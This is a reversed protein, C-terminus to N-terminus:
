PVVIRLFRGPAGLPVSATRRGDPGPASLTVGTTTWNTLDTSTEARYTLGARGAYFSLQLNNGSLVPSPLQARQPVTPDLNLAWGLRLNVGDGDPDTGLNTEYWLGNQLLWAAAPYTTENIRIAPYGQWTPSTFGTRSSLYYITLSWSFVSHLFGNGPANGLFVITSLCGWGKGVDHM